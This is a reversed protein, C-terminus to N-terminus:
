HIICYEPNNHVKDMFDNEDTRDEFQGNAIDELSKIGAAAYQKTIDSPLKCEFNSHKFHCKKDSTNGIIQLVGDSTRDPTCTYLKEWVPKYVLAQASAGELLFKQMEPSLPNNNAMANGISCASIILLGVIFKCLNKKM